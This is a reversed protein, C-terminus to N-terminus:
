TSFLCNTILDYTNIIQESTFIYDDIETIGDPNDALEVNLKETRIDMIVQQYAVPLFYLLYNCTSNIKIVLLFMNKYEVIRAKAKKEVTKNILEFSNPYSRDCYFFIETRGTDIGYIKKKNSDFYKYNVIIPVNAEHILKDLESKSVFIPNICKKEYDFFLVANRKIYYKEKIVKRIKEPIFLMDTDFHNNDSINGLYFLIGKKNKSSNLISNYESEVYNYIRFSTPVSYQPLDTINIKMTRVSDLFIQIQENNISEIYMEKLYKKVKLLYKEYEETEKDNIYFIDEIRAKEDLDSNLLKEILIKMDISRNAKIIEFCNKIFHIFRENPLYKLRKQENTLYEKFLEKNKLCEINIDTIDSNLALKALAIVLSILNDETLNIKNNHPELLEIYCILPEIYRYYQKNYRKLYKVYRMTEEYGNTKILFMCQAFVAAGEQVNISCDCLNNMLEKYSNDYIEIRRICYSFLGWKTQKTLLLHITEHVITSNLCDEDNELVNIATINRFDYEGLVGTKEM